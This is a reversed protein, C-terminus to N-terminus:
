KTLTIFAEEAAEAVRPDPDKMGEYLAPLYKKDNLCGFSEMVARRTLPDRDKAASLLVPVVTKDKLKGLASIEISHLLTRFDQKYFNKLIEASTEKMIKNSDKVSVEYLKQKLAPNAGLARSYAALATVKFLRDPDNINKELLGAQREKDPGYYGPLLYGLAQLASFKIERAGPQLLLVSIDPVAESFRLASLTQIVKQKIGDDRCKLLPLLAPFTKPDNIRELARLAYWKVNNDPDKLKETIKESYYSGGIRGAIKLANLRTDKDASDLEQILEPINFAKEGLNQLALAASIRVQLEKDEGLTRLRKGAEPARIKGLSGAAEARVFKDKDLLLKLLPKVAEKGFFYLGKATEARVKSDADELMVSFSQIEQKSKVEVLTRIAQLRVDPDQDKLADLLSVPTVFKSGPRIVAINGKTLLAKEAKGKVAASGEVISVITKMKTACVLLATGLVRIEGNVTKIIFEQGPYKRIEAKMSGEFLCIKEKQRFTEMRLKSGKSIALLSGDNLALEIETQGASVFSGSKATLAPGEESGTERVTGITVPLSFLYVAISLILILLASFGAAAPHLFVSIFPRNKKGKSKRVASIVNEEFEPSAGPAEWKSLLENMNEYERFFWACDPCEKLHLETKQCSQQSLVGEFYSQANERIKECHKEM